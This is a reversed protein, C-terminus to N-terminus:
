ISSPSHRLITSVNRAGTTDTVARLSGVQNYTLYYVAGQYTMSVPMRGDAYNFRQILADSADYVALLTTADQWLYKETISGNVKKAVRRGLPDHNYTIVDTNPLTVSLLEGRSSYDFTTTGSNAGSVITRSTLFGDVDFSYTDAGATLIHDEISHTYSRSVGRLVNNENLRNGNDDYSYAEALMSDKYVTELRGMLDYTYDWTVTDVGINEVKQTIRGANDRTVSWSYPAGAGVNYDVGDVEGYGSFVRGQVVTGDSVAEPLGNSVNRTITFTGAGTLLGDNDYLFLEVGGAYGISGVRMDTDYTYDIIENVTGLRTDSLLLSGDYVYSTNETGKTVSGLKGGCDYGYTITGEPTVTSDM